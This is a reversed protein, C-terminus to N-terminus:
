AQILFYKIVQLPPPHPTTGHNRKMVLPPPPLFALINILHYTFSGKHVSQWPGTFSLGRNREFNRYFFHKQCCKLSHDPTLSKELQVPQSTESTINAHRISIPFYILTSRM